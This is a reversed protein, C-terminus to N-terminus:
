STREGVLNDALYEVIRLTEPDAWHVDELVVLCGRNGALVWLFRLVAEALAIVSDEVRPDDGAM